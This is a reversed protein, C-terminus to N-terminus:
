TKMKEMWNKIGKLVAYLTIDSAELTLDFVTKRYWTLQRKAYNRTHQKIDNLCEDLIKKEKQFAFLEKYGVTNMGPSDENYGMELLNQFEEILGMEVMKDVRDNIKKYLIERNENILINFFIFDNKGAPNEQWLQTITKGTHEFVELARIIRNADNPNAREASDPDVQKLKDHLFESGKEEAIKQLEKRIKRPINPAKFIGEQLAKIYFMTGGCVIPLKRIRHLSKICESADRAFDGASYEQNPEIINIIHHKVTKQEQLSPKATGINLYKYVQRSDASIIDTKFEAALQMALQSKGVATPGQIVVVPIM